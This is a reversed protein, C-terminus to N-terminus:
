GTQEEEDWPKSSDREGWLEGTIRSIVWNPDLFMYFMDENCSLAECAEDFNREPDEHLTRAHFHMELAVRAAHWLVDGRKGKEDCVLNWHLSEQFFQKWLKDHDRQSLDVM